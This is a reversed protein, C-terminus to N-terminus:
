TQDKQATLLFLPYTKPQGNVEKPVHYIITSTINKFGIKALNEALQARDFGNHGDFGPGHFSGDEKDLDAICLAGSSNLLAHFSALISDTDPIHHLTMLTYLLDFREAPLPDSALDLLLPTLNEVQASAIKERLVALMGASSDALTIQGLDQHLAFSLLGTGCGYELASTKRTLAVSKRIAQAVSRAREVRAPNADWDKARQDFYDSM